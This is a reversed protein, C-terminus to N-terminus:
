KKYCNWDVTLWKDLINQADQTTLIGLNVRPALYDKICDSIADGSYYSQARFGIHFAEQERPDLFYDVQGEACTIDDLDPGQAIHHIEHAIVGFLVSRDITHKKVWQGKNLFINLEITPECSSDPGATAYIDWGLDTNHSFRKVEYGWQIIKEDTDIKFPYHWACYESHKKEGSSLLNLIKEGIEETLTKYFFSPDSLCTM